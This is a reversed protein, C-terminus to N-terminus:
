EEKERITVSVFDEGGENLVIEYGEDLFTLLSEKSKFKVSGFCDYEEPECVMFSLDLCLNTLENFSFFKICSALYGDYDSWYLEVGKIKM